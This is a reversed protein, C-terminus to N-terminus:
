EERYTTITMTQNHLSCEVKGNVPTIEGNSYFGSYCPKEGFFDCVAEVEDEVRHGLVMKRGVCSIMLVFDPSEGDISQLGFQAAKEAGEVLRDFNAMMFRAQNGEPIDGAFTMTGTEDDISLITRVLTVDGEVYINLPFLLAAGPLDKAKDGLYDKYIELAPKGDLEHLVNGESKTIRRVPGFEDWGGMSGHGIKIRSGYFGIVVVNGSEPTGNLGVFTKTFRGADAALGGTVLVGEPLSANLGAVLQDGNVKSGDSIVLVHRLDTTDFQQGLNQGLERSDSAVDVPLMHAVIETSDFQLLNAIITEDNVEDNDIEGATSAMVINAEPFNSRLHEYHTNEFVVDIGGFALVLQPNPASGDPTTWGGSASWRMQSVNM